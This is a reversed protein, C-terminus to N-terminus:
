PTVADIPGPPASAQQQQAQARLRASSPGPWAWINLSRGGGTGGADTGSGEAGAIFRAGGEPGAELGLRGAGNVWGEIAATGGTAAGRACRRGALGHQRQRRAVALVKGDDGTSQHPPDKRVPRVLGASEFQDALIAAGRGVDHQRRAAIHDMDRESQDARHARHGQLGLGVAFGEQQRGPAKRM